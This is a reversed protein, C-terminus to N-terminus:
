GVLPRHEELNLLQSADAMNPVKVELDAMGMTGMSWPILVIISRVEM